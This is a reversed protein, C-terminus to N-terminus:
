GGRRLRPRPHRPAAGLSRRPIAGPAAAARAGRTLGPQALLADMERQSRDLLGNARLYEYADEVAERFSRRPVYGIQRESEENSFFSPLSAARAAARSLVCPAGRLRASAEAFCAAAWVAVGPVEPFDSRIRRLPEKRRLVDAIIRLIDALSRNDEARGTAIYRGGPRGNQVALVHARAVDEVHALPLGTRSAGPVANGRVQLLYLSTGILTDRPGFSTGPLVSVADLGEEYVARAVIEQAALKSDFYGIGIRRQWRAPATGDHVADAFALAEAASAFSFPSPRGAYPDCSSVTGLSGRPRPWGLANVTSTHCIRRVTRSAAAARLVNRTGEVNVLWQVRKLRPDFSTVGATHFVLTRDRCAATATEPDVIDGAVLEIGTLDRLSSTSGGGLYLVRISAPPVGEDRVLRLVLNSGILGTGGTVLIRERALNM